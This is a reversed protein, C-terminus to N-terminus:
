KTCDPNNKGWLKIKIFIFIINKNTSEMFRIGLTLLAPAKVMEFFFSVEECRFFPLSLFVLPMLSSSVAEM